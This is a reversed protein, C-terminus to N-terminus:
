KAASELWAAHQEPTEVFVRAAMIGHGIGCMEACQLDYVGARTPQFWGTIKRGPIVDQKLRFAPVSFSHLVDRSELTFQVPKDLVVHLEDATKVDDDSGLKGDVGPHVFTWAWQQGVVEVMMPNEPLTQKVEYWVTVAAYIIAVDCAIILYHPINIWRKLEPENGTVYLARVGERYRYRWLLWFFAMVTLTFWFAVIVGVLNVVNDIDSAFTSAPVMLSELM